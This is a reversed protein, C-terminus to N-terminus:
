KGSLTMIEAMFADKTKPIMRRLIFRVRNGPASGIEVVGATWVRAVM